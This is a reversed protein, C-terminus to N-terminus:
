LYDDPIFQCMVFMKLKLDRTVVRVTELLNERERQHEQQLDKVESKANMVLTWLKKLKRTKAAAEEQLSAYEEEIQINAEESQALKRELEREQRKKEEIEVAKQSLEMRQKEEKDLM